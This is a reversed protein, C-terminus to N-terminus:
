KLYKKSVEDYILLFNNAKGNRDFFREWTNLPEWICSGKGRNNAVNFSRENVEKKVNSYEVVIVDKSYRHSLDDLNYELDALTNHWKPYYSLGIVDFQVGRTIMNDIFFKSEDNQGGLAIHLMISTSPSVAKVGQIGAYILQALNDLNTVSGDPWVMGHNIENGIQVMEPVTGQDNLAQMVLKTYDYMAQKLDSFSKGRWAAPMHAHQPDAWYDSYHFDLLLKMGAAKARKAMQLTHALDCFGKKPSYGSDRAPDNFIRLRIYNLGHDKLIKFVDKETGDIDYFKMGRSELEPLHSIDAGLMKDVPTPKFPLMPFSNNSSTVKTVPAAHITMIDTAGTWMSDAKAEFHIMSETLGSQVIVQCKGNFLHRQATTDFYKDQEHSSPDGNGVGIIKADGRLSFRILNDADPVERGQRDIVSINIVTADKGDAMMTTKYPSIVLEAPKGTTEVKAQLKKGKKYAIAELTGPEYNVLWNLHGNRPMNKKGLSKGNLFLEVDEANSNVWVDIPQGEKGPWNWHPSIHLVDKDTWWSQYYYYINKPFGCVDMIGFHSSVNPWTFPTPEGRYDLGTWVFGGLWYDNPAALKWWAEATSAWWPFSIDQDPVYGIVSDRVYQGRTTVTSGMETGMLPQGPHENHYKEVEKHRYNFSRVPIVENVGYFQKGNDAAYTSLRTPDLEKQKALLSLAILKGTGNSHVWQEENGISWMFVCARSRDRKILWEFDNMYQPSSNLLRNEDLVLMGLSDCADLLEKTPPNHSTRYANSGMQKLLFIRYYQLYDPLASGVGAHDQHNNTGKLKIYKGNLFVGKTTIDFTRIGFRMKDTDIIKGASRVVPIVRYLYPDELSWLKPNNIQLSQKVTTKENVSLSVIKATTEGIKNGDRDTIIASVSINASAYSENQVSTEVYVTATNKQVTTHVFVPNEDLHVPDYQNLWVHRYIGAGEYFWGEYQTADVRISLVNEGGYRLYNSIDYSAGVYGSKHNGLYFGNAWFSADRYIGDFQLQFRQGSDTRAVTFQKRYWGISTEPYAGGVPKYGHSQEDFSKSYVFPLEVAWDHPLSLKRWASDNFKPDIATTQAAGTKAFITAISYNFDKAPDNANGFAFKWNDDFNIKKRQQAIVTVTSCTLLAILFYIIKIQKM